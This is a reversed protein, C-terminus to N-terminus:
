SLGSKLMKFNPCVGLNGNYLTTMLVPTWISPEERVEKESSLKKRLSVYLPSDGRQFPILLLFMFSPRVM